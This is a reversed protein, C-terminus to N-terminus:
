TPEICPVSGAGHAVVAPPREGPGGDPQAADPRRRFTRVADASFVILGLWILGFSAFQLRTFPEGFVLVAILLQCTPAVYQLLGLTALRLRRAAAAFWILPLATIVGGLLLLVAVRDGWAFLTQGHGASWLVYGVAIPLLIATEISLGVLPRVPAVKRILGYVGFSVALVLSVVPLGGVAWTMLGVGAAALAVAALQTARLREKLLVVGLLVNVLPNIFYGFSASVAQAHAVAWIFTYWNVAIMLTSGLMALRVRPNKLAQRAEGFQGTLGLLVALLAVSWVIRHGLVLAPPVMKIQAFYLMIVGWALYAALGYALGAAAAPAPAAAPVSAPHSPDSVPPM